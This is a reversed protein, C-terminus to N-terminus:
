TGAEAILAAMAARVDKRTACRIRSLHAHQPDAFLAGYQARRKEFTDWAFRIPHDARWMRWVDERCGPFVDKGSFARPFSRGIVQRMVVHKPLDLWVVHTARGWVLDRVSSYNGSITWAPAATAADVRARFDDRDHTNRDFWGPGWNLLDMEIHALGAAGALRAAFTSKGSGSTGGVVVRM